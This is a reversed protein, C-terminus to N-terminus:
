QSKPSSLVIAKKEEIQKLLTHMFHARAKTSLVEQAKWVKDVPLTTDIKKDIFRYFYAGEKPAVCVKSDTSPELNVVEDFPIFSSASRTLTEEKKMPKWRSAQDHKHRLHFAFRYPAVYDALQDEPVEKKVMGQELADQYIAKVVSACDFTSVDLVNEKKAEAFSLIEKQPAREQVHIRYYTEQDQTYLSLRDEKDLLSILSSLDKIGDFPSATHRSRLFVKKEVMEVEDLTKTIWEPHANVITSRAFTDVLGRRKADMAELVLSRSAEDSTEKEALEPFQTQLIKWNDENVEWDWTEKVTVKAQLSKKTVTAVNLRYRKGVLEPACAEIREISDWEEPLELSSSRESAVAALYKEFMKLEQANQFRYESPMQFLEIAAYEKAQSFFQQMGQADVLAAGGVDQFLRRFLMIQQWMKVLTVEDVQHVKQYHQFLEYGSKMPMGPLDKMAQFNKVSKILLDALAEEQTVSYGQMKAYAATNLIFQAACEVFQSGFWDQATHYGFLSLEERQLRPDAPLNPYEREQYRLVQALVPAPFHREALYLDIRTQFAELAATNECTQLQSLSEKIGPAFLGWVTSASLFKAYPHTYPVYSKERPLKDQLENGIPVSYFQFLAQALGGEFFDKTLVGDNLFNGLTGRMSPLPPLPEQSLFYSLQSLSSRRVAKGDLTHFAVEDSASRTPAFAQYTGFFIFSCITMLTIMLFFIKQYKRFFNLM